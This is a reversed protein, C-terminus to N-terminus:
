RRKNGTVRWVLYLFVFYELVRSCLQSYLSEAGFNIVREMLVLEKGAYNHCCLGKLAPFVAAYSDVLRDGAIHRIERFNMMKYRRIVSTNAANAWLQIKARVNGGCEGSKRRKIVELAAHDKVQQLIHQLGRLIATTGRHGRRIYGGSICWIIELDEVKNEDPSSMYIPGNLQTVAAWEGNWPEDTAATQNPTCLVIQMSPEALASQWSERQVQSQCSYCTAFAEPHNKLGELRYEIYEDVYKDIVSPNKPLSSAHYDTMGM